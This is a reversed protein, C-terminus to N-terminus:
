ILTVVQLLRPHDNPVSSSAYTSDPHMNLSIVCVGVAETVSVCIYTCVSRHSIVGKYQLWWWGCGVQEKLSANQLKVKLFKALVCVPKATFAARRNLVTWAFPWDRDTHASHFALLSKPMSCYQHIKLIERTGFIM